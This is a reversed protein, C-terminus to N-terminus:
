QFGVLQTVYAGKYGMAILDKKLKDADRKNAFIERSEVVWVEECPRYRAVLSKHFPYDAPNTNRLIAVQIKYETIAETGFRPLSSRKATNSGGRTSYEDPFDNCYAPKQTQAFLFIPACCILLLLMRKM